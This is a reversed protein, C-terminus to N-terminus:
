GRPVEGVVGAMYLVGVIGLPVGILWILVDM